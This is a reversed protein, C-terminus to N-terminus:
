AEVRSGYEADCSEAYQGLCAIRSWSISPTNTAEEISQPIDTTVRCRPGDDEAVIAVVNPRLM